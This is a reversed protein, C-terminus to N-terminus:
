NFVDAEFKFSITRFRLCRLLAPMEISSDGFGWISDLHAPSAPYRLYSIDVPVPMGNIAEHMDGYAAKQMVRGLMRSDSQIRSFRSMAMLIFSCPYPISFCVKGITSCGCGCLGRPLAKSLEFRNVETGLSSAWSCAATAFCLVFSDRRPLV